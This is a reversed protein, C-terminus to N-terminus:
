GEITTIFTGSMHDHWTLHDGDVVAWVFGLMLSAMSVLYGFARWFSEQPSPAGGDLSRVELSMWLLGPTSSSLATFIGFYALFFLISITGLIAFNLANRSVHGGVVWFILAFLGAGSLVVFADVIGAAFRLGLPAVNISGPVRRRSSASSLPSSSELVIEVPESDKEEGILRAEGADVAASTLVRVDEVPKELPVSDLIPLSEGSDGLTTDFHDKAVKPPEVLQADVIPASIEESAEGFALDLTGSRDFDSQAHSRRRRHDQVREALEERWTTASSVPRDMPEAAIEPIEPPKPAASPPVDQGAQLADTKKQPDAKPTTSSPDTPIPKTHAPAFRYGCRKCQALGPYSVFGCKPCTV